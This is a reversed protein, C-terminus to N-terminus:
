RDCGDEGGEGGESGEGGEGGGGGGEGGGGGHVSLFRSQSCQALMPSHSTLGPYMSLLQMTLQSVHM